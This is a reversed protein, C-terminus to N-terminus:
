NHLIKAIEIAAKAGSGAAIVIQKEAGAVVDGVAFIRSQNTQFNEDVLIEGFQNLEVQSNKLFDTNPILGIFEFIAAASLEFERDGSRIKAGRVKEGFPSPETLIEVVESQLHVNIAGDAVAAELKQQLIAQASIQNRVILDVPSFRSLFLAEQVASNGGGVVILKQGRYFPGDCTACFHVGRGILSEEKELGLRRYSNGVALLVARSWFDQGDIKMSVRDDCQEIDSVEGYDIVAGFKEAQLRMKKALEAGFIGDEFGPFNDISETTAVLGGVIKKEFVRVSLGDRAAYIAATLASPGSGVIVLDAM